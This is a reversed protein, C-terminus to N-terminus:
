KNSRRSLFALLTFLAFLVFAFIYTSPAITHEEYAHKQSSFLGLQYHAILYVLILLGFVYIPILAYAIIAELVDASM